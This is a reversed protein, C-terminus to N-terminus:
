TPACSQVVVSTRLPPSSVDEYDTPEDADVDSDLIGYDVHDDFAETVDFADEDATM